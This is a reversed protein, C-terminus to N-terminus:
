KKKVSEEAEKKKLDAIIKECKKFLTELLQRYRTIIAVIKALERDERQEIQKLIGKELTNISIMEMYVSHHVVEMAKRDDKHAEINDLVKKKRAEIEEKAIEEQSRLDIHKKNNVKADLYNITKTTMDKIISVLSEDFIEFKRNVIEM